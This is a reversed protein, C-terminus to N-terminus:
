IIEIDYLNAENLRLQINSWLRIATMKASLLGLQSGAMVQVFRAELSM